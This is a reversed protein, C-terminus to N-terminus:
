LMVEYLGNDCVAVTIPKVINFPLGNDTMIQKADALDQTMGFTPIVWWTDFRIIKGGNPGIVVTMADLDIM